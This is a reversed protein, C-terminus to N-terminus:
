GSRSCLKLHCAVHFLIAKVSCRSTDMVIDAATQLDEILRETRNKHVDAYSIFKELGGPCALRGYYREELVNSSATLHMHCVTGGYTERIALIQDLTRVSDVVVPSESPMYPLQHVLEDRLWRGDTIRDLREGEAQLESRGSSDGHVLMRQLLNRTQVTTTNFHKALNRALTTKGSAIPGSLM